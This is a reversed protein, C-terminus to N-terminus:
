TLTLVTTVTAFLLASGAIVYPVARDVPWSVARGLM